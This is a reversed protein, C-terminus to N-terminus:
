AHASPNAPPPASPSASPQEPAAAPRQPLEDNERIELLKFPYNLAPPQASTGGSTTANPQTPPTPAAVPAQAATAPRKTTAKQVVAKATSGPPAVVVNLRYFAPSTPSDRVTVIIRLASISTGLGTPATDLGLIAAADSANRFYGPGQAQFNGTGALYDAIRAQQIPDYGLTSLVGPRAANLNSQNFDLLSVTDTFRHWYDNPRGNEDFFFDRVVDIAALESFSRLPRAPAVYPQLDNEYDPTLSTPVYDPRMWQMLADTLKEVDAQNLEWSKFLENLTNPTAHPLSMKGSEDVFEVTIVRGEPSAYGAWGLPDGWGEAPSRLAGNALRFDQLVALTTELASYAELRLRKADAYRSEILLDDSAREIFLTLALSAFVLTVLVIVLVSGRTRTVKQVPFRM